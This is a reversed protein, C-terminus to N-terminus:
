SCGCYERTPPRTLRAPRRHGRGRPRGDGRDRPPHPRAVRRQDAGGGARPPRRGRGFVFADCRLENRLASRGSSSRRVSRSTRSSRLNSAQRRRPASVIAEDVLSFGLSGGSERRGRADARRRPRLLLRRSLEHGSAVAPECSTLFPGPIRREAPKLGWEPSVHDGSDPVRAHARCAFLRPISRRCRAAVKSGSAEVAAPTTATPTATCNGAAGGCCKVAGTTAVGQTGLRRDDGPHYVRHRRLRGPTRARLDDPRQPGPGDRGRYRLRRSRRRRLLRRPLWGFRGDRDRAPRFAVALPAGGVGGTTSGSGLWLRLRAAARSSAQRQAASLARTQAPSSPAPASSSRSALPARPPSVVAVAAFIFFGLLGLCSFGSPLRRGVAPRQEDRRDHRLRGRRRQGGRIVPASPFIAALVVFLVLPLPRLLSVAVVARRRWRPGKGTAVM